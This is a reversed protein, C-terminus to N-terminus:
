TNLFSRGCSPRFSLERNRRLNGSNVDGFPRRRRRTFLLPSMLQYLFLTKRLSTNRKSSNANSNIVGPKQLTKKRSM